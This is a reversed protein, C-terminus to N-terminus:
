VQYLHEDTGLIAQGLISQWGFPAKDVSHQMDKPLHQKPNSFWLLWWFKSFDKSFLLSQCKKIPIFCFFFEQFFFEFHCVLFFSM